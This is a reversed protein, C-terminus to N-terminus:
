RGTLLTARSPACYPVPVYFSTFRVGERALRDIHPTAYAEQGYCGLDGYGLDDALILVVNPREPTEGASVGGACLVVLSAAATAFLLRQWAM